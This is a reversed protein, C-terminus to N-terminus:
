SKFKNFEGPLMEYLKDSSILHLDFNQSVQQLWNIYRSICGAGTRSAAGKKFINADKDFYLKNATHFVSDCSYFDQRGMFQEIIEGRVTMDKSLLFRSNEGYRNALMWSMRIAHRYNYRYDQTDLVYHYVMAPKKNGKKDVKCLQDFWLLALASWFGADDQIDRTDVGALISAIYEGCEYRSQFKRNEFDANIGSPASTEPNELLFLPTEVEPNSRLDRIYASFKEMGLENLRNKM